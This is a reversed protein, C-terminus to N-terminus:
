LEYRTVSPLFRHRRWGFPHLHHPLAPACPTQTLQAQDNGVGSRAGDSSPNRFLDGAEIQIALAVRQFPYFRDRLKVGIRRPSRTVEGCRTVIALGTRCDDHLGVGKRFAV